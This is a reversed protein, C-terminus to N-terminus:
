AYAYFTKVQWRTILFASHASEALPLGFRLPETIRMTTFLNCAGSLNMSKLM